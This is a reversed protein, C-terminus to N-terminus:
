RERSLFRIRQALEEKDKCGLDKLVITSNIIVNNPISLEVLRKLKDWRDHLWSEYKPEKLKRKRLVDRAYKGSLKRNVASASLKTGNSSRSLQTRIKDDDPDELEFSALKPSIPKPSIIERPSFLPAAAKEISSVKEGNELNKNFERLSSISHPEGVHSPSGLPTTGRKTTAKPLYSDIKRLIEEDDSEDSEGSELDGEVARMKDISINIQDIIEQATRSRTAASRMIEDAEVVASKVSSSSPLIEKRLPSLRQPTKTVVLKYEEYLARGKQGNGTTTTSRGPLDRDSADFEIDKEISIPEFVPMDPGHQDAPKLFTSRMRKAPSSVQGRPSFENNDTIVKENRILEREEDSFSVLAKRKRTRTPTSMNTSKTLDNVLPITTTSKVYFGDSYSKSAERLAAPTEIITDEFESDSESSAANMAHAAKAVSSTHEGNSM